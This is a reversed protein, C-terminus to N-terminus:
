KNINLNAVGVGFKEAIQDLTLELKEEKVNKSVKINGKCVIRNNTGPIDVFEIEEKLQTDKM